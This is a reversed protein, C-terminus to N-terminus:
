MNIKIAQWDTVKVSTRNGRTLLFIIPATLKVSKENYNYKFNAIIKKLHALIKCLIFDYVPMAFIRSKKGSINLIETAM